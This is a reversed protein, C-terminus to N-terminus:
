LDNWDPQWIWGHQMALIFAVVSTIGVAILVFGTWFQLGPHRRDQREMVVNGALKIGVLFMVVIALIGACYYVVDWHNWQDLHM